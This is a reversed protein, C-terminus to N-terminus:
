RLDASGTQDAVVGITRDEGALRRMVAVFDSGRGSAGTYVWSARSSTRGPLEAHVALEGDLKSRGYVSLPGTLDSIRLVAWVERRFVYDTSIHILRAGARACSRGPKRGVANSRTPPTPQAEAADVNTFAACNVVVGAGRYPPRRCSLRHHRSRWPGAVVDYGQRAAEAALFGGVQRAGTVVMREPMHSSDPVGTQAVPSAAPDGTAGPLHWILRFHRCHRTAPGTPRVTMASSATMIRSPVPHGPTRDPGEFAPNWKM